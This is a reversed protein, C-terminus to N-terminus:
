RVPGPPAARTGTLPGAARGLDRPGDRSRPGDRGHSDIRGRVGGGLERKFQLLTTASAGVIWVGRRRGRAKILEAARHLMRATEPSGARLGTMDLVVDFDRRLKDLEGTLPHLMEPGEADRFFGSMRLYARNKSRDARFGSDCIQGEM